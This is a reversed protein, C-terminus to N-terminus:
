SLSATAITQRTPSRQVLLTKPGKTTGYNPEELVQFYLGIGVEAEKRTNSTSRTSNMKTCGQLLTRM